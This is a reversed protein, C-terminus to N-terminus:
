PTLVVKGFHERNELIRHAESAEALPLAAHIRPRLKGEAILNMVRCIEQTTGTRSGIVQWENRFFPIIDFPVVEGAHGGCTVLRGGKRLAGLSANFQEGGLHEVVLDVGRGNTLELAGATVDDHRYNITHDAGDAQANELKEDSGATTIVTAGALKAIQVAAHGVGSGAASVLVTEGAELQGRTVLMHWATTFVIQGAAAAEYSVSAPLPFVARAPAAVYEAYGGPRQVSWMEAALCRNDDGALCHPCSLCPMEHLVWVRQGEELGQVGAGVAAVDGAFELGLTWPLAVPWRSVNERLDVDFHNLACARVRVLVEDDGPVPDPVDDLRLVDRGGHEHFRVAKM